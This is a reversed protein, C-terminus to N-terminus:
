QRARFYAEGETPEVEYPSTAGAVDEFPGTVTTASQLTGEFTLVVNGEANLAIEVFAEGGEPRMVGYDRFKGVWLGRDDENTINANEPAFEPGVFLTDPLEEGDVGADDPWTTAGMEIWDEGGNARYITITQGERVMRVWPDPYEPTGGAPISDTAGGTLLRRNGEWAANGNTGPGTLTPGVPNVHVKQYRGAEGGEQAARDVGFNTVARAIL